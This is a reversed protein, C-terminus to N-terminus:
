HHIAVPVYKKVTSTEKTIQHAPSTVFCSSRCVTSRMGDNWNKTVALHCSSQAVFKQTRCTHLVRKTPMSIPSLDQHPLDKRPQLILGAIISKLAEPRHVRTSETANCCLYCGHCYRKIVVHHVSAVRNEIGANKNVPVGGDHRSGM